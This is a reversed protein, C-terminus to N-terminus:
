QVLPHTIFLLANQSMRNKDRTFKFLSESQTFTHGGTYLRHPAISSHIITPQREVSEITSVRGGVDGAKNLRSLSGHRQISHTQSVKEPEEDIVSLRSASPRRGLTKTEPMTSYLDLLHYLTRWCKPTNEKIEDVITKEALAPSSTDGMEIAVSDSLNLSHPPTQAQQAGSKDGVATETSKTGFIDTPKRVKLSFKKPSRGGQLFLNLRDPRYDKEAVSQSTVESQSSVTRTQTTPPTTTSDPTPTNLDTIGSGADVKGGEVQDGSHSETGTSSGKSDQKRHTKYKNVRGSLEVRTDNINEIMSVFQHVLRLLSMNVHQNIATCNMSFHVKTTTPKAEMHDMAFKIARLSRRRYEETERKDREFDVIDKMGIMVTFMNCLFTPTELGADINLKPLKKARLRGKTVKTKRSTGTESDVIDVKLTQLSGSISVNGGFKKMFASSKVAGLHIGISKLM